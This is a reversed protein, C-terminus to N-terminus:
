TKTEKVKGTKANYLSSPVILHECVCLRFDEYGADDLELASMVASKDNFSPKYRADHDQHDVLIYFAQDLKLKTRGNTIYGHKSTWTM